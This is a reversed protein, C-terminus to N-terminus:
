VAVHVPPRKDAWPRAHELQSALRLLTAEDGFRGAFQVGVPLGTASWHLPLSIAPQGTTNFLPTFPAYAFVQRTWEMATMGQRDQNLEGLPAPPRAITPTLLVDVTEFFRGVERSLLNGHAMADLLDVATFRKGDEYCALTVAELNDPGPKRNMGAAIANVSAATFSTWM